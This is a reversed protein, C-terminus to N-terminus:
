LAAHYYNTLAKLSILSVVANEDKALPTAVPHNCLKHKVFDSFCLTMLKTSLLLM